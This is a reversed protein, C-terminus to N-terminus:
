GSGGYTESIQALHPELEPCTTWMRISRSTETVVELQISIQREPLCREVRDSWEVLTISNSDFLEDVGLELFEDDDAIRYADLHNVTRGGCAYHQCLVFTPSVVDAADGGLAAVLSRVLHTKGAGLTGLLGIAVQDPLSAALGQAFRDTESENACELQYVRDSAPNDM